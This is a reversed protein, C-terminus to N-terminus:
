RAGVPLMVSLGCGRGGLAAEGGWYETIGGCNRGGMGEVTEWCDWTEALELGETVERGAWGGGERVPVDSLVSGVLRFRGRVRGVSFDVKPKQLAATRRKRLM